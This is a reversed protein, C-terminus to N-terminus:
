TKNARSDDPPHLTVMMVVQNSSALLQDKLEECKHLMLSIMCVHRELCMDMIDFDPMRPGTRCTHRGSWAAGVDDVQCGCLEAQQRTPRSLWANRTKIAHQLSTGYPLDSEVHAATIVKSPHVTHCAIHRPQSQWETAM